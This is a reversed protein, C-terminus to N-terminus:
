HTVTLHISFTTMDLTMTHTNPTHGVSVQNMVHPLTITFVSSSQQCMSSPCHYVSLPGKVSFVMPMSTHSELSLQSTGPYTLLSIDSCTVTPLSFEPCPYAPSGENIFAEGLLGCLSFYIMRVTNKHLHGQSDLQFNVWCASCLRPTVLSWRQGCLWDTYFALIFTEKIQTSSIQLCSSPFSSPLARSTRNDQSTVTLSHPM